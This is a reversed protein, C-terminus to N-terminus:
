SIVWVPCTFSSWIPEISFTQILEIFVPGMARIEEVALAEAPKDTAAGPTVSPLSCSGHNHHESSEWMM